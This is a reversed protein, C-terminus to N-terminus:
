STGAWDGPKCAPVGTGSSALMGRTILLQALAYTIGGWEEVPASKLDRGHIVDWVFTGIVGVRKRHNM